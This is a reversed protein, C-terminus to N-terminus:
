GTCYVRYQRPSYLNFTLGGILANVFTLHAEIKAVKQDGCIAVADIEKEGPLLGLIFFHDSKDEKPYDPSERLSSIQHACGSVM